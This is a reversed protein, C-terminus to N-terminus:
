CRSATGMGSGVSGDSFGRSSLTSNRTGSERLRYLRVGLPEAECDVTGVYCLDFDECKELAALDAFRGTTHIQGPQLRRLSPALPIETRAEASAHLVFTCAGGLGGDRMQQRLQWASRVAETMTPWGFVFPGATGNALSPRAHDGQWSACIEACRSSANAEDPRVQVWLRAMLMGRDAAVVPEEPEDQRLKFPSCTMNKWHSPTDAGSTVPLLPVDWSAARAAARAAALHRALEAGSGESAAADAVEVFDAGAVARQCAGRPEAEPLVVCTEIGLAAACTLFVAEQGSGAASWACVVNNAELWRALKSREAEGLDHAHGHFVAVAAPRFCTDYDEASAPLVDALRRVERRVVALDARRTSGARDAQLLAARARENEGCLMCAIASTAASWLRDKDPSLELIQRAMVRARALDGTLAALVAANIGCYVSDEMAFGKAYCDLAQRLHRASAEPTPAREAFDKQLRGLLGLTEADEPTAILSDRLVEMAEDTAGSRALALALQQRLPLADAAPSVLSLRRLAREAVAAALMHEGRENAERALQAAVRPNRKAEPLQSRWVLWADSSDTMEKM